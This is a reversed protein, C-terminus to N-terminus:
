LKLVILYTKTFICQVAYWLGDDASSFAPLALHRGDTLPGVWYRGGSHCLHLHQVQCPPLGHHEQQVQIKGSQGASSWFCFDTVCVRQITFEATCSLSLVSTVSTHRFHVMPVYFLMVAQPEKLIPIYVFRIDTHKMVPFPLFASLTSFYRGCLASFYAECLSWLM